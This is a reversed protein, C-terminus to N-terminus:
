PSEWEPALVTAVGIVWMQFDAGRGQYAGRCGVDLLTVKGLLISFFDALPTRVDSLPEVYRLTRRAEESAAAKSSSRKSCGAAVRVLDEITIDRRCM